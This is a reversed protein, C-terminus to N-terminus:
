HTLLGLAANPSSVINFCGCFFVRICCNVYNRYDVALIRPIVDAYVQMKLVELLFDTCRRNAQLM